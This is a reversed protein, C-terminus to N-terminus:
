DRAVHRSSGHGHEAPRHDLARDFRARIRGEKRPGTVRWTLEFADPADGFDLEGRYVDPGCPHEEIAWSPGPQLSHFYRASRLISAVSRDDRSEDFYVTARQPSSFDYLLRHTADLRQAPAADAVFRGHEEFALLLREEHQLPAFTAVGDFSGSLGGRNYELTKRLQWRGLLYNYLSGTCAPPCLSASSGLAATLVAHSFRM